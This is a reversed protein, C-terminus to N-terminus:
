HHIVPTVSATRQQKSQFVLERAITTYNKRECLAITEILSQIHEATRDKYTTWETGEQMLYYGSNDGVIKTGSKRRYEIEKRLLRFFTSYNRVGGNETYSLFLVRSKVANKKGFLLRHLTFKKNELQEDATM